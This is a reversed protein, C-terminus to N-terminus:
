GIGLKFLGIYISVAIPKNNSFSKNLVGSAHDVKLKQM